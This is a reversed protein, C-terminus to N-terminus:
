VEIEWKGAVLSLNRAQLVRNTTSFGIQNAALKIPNNPDTVETKLNGSPEDGANQAFWYMISVGSIPSHFTINTDIEIMDNAYDVTTTEGSDLPGDLTETQPAGPAFLLSQDFYVDSMAEDGPFQIAVTHVNISLQLTLAKRATHYENRTGSVEGKETQQNGRTTKFNQVITDLDTLDAPVFDASNAALRAVLLDMKGEAENLDIDTYFDLGQPFIVEMKQPNDDYVYGAYKWIKRVQKKWDFIVLGVATTEGERQGINLQWATHKTRATQLKTETGAIINDFVNGSNNAKTRQLNDEAYDFLRDISIRPDEFLDTVFRSIRIM